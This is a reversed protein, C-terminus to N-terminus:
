RSIDFADIEIRDGTSKENRSGAVKITLVHPGRSLGTISWVSVLDKKATNYQDVTALSKGDIYLLAVGLDPGQTGIWKVGTGLFRLTATNGKASASILANCSHQNGSVINWQGETFIPVVMSVSLASEAEYRMPLQIEHWTKGADASKVLQSMSAGYITKGTNYDPTFRLLPASDRGLVPTFEYGANASTCPIATFKDLMDQCLLLDGNKIQVLLQHDTAYFPSIAIQSVLTNSAEALVPIKAWTNGGDRSRCLGQAGGAYLTHDAEFAPSIALSVEGCSTDNTLKQWGGGRDISRYIGGTSPSAFVTHDKSYNPSVALHPVAGGAGDWITSFTAGGDLSRLMNNPTLGVFLTKDSNFNPSIGLSLPISVIESTDINLWTLIKALSSLKYKLVAKRIIKSLIEKLQEISYKSPQISTTDWNNGGNKSKAVHGYTVTFVTNDKAYTPSYAIPGLRPIFLGRTNIEWSTGGDSTTYMGQGYTNVSVKYGSKTLPSVDLALIYNYLTEIKNWSLGEDTSLFIGCFGGLFVKSDNSIAIKNFHPQLYEVAQHNKLLGTNHKKWTVGNNDSRYLADQWSSAFLIRKTDECLFDLATIYKLDPVDTCLRQFARGEDVAKLIGDKATGIFFPEKVSFGCPLKICTIKQSTPLQSYRRWNFGNNESACLEGEATGFIALHGAWDVATITTEHHYVKGWSDGADNSRFIDGNSYMALVTRDERFRPSIALYVLILDAKINCTHVIEWSRGGDHSRNIDGNLCACFLTKDESFSPSVALAMPPHHCLGKSQHYWSYGGDTSKFLSWYVISFVTRDRAFDPSLKLDVVVDHPVHALTQGHWMFCFCLALSIILTKKHM